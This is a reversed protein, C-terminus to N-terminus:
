VHSAEICLELKEKLYARDDSNVVQNNIENEVMEYTVVEEKLALLLTRVVYVWQSKWRLEWQPHGYHHLYHHENQTLPFAFLDSSKSGTCSQGHGIIHHPHDAPMGSISSRQKKVWDLYNRSRYKKQKIM